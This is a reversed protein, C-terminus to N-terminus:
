KKDAKDSDIVEGEIVHPEDTHAAGQFDDSSEYQRYEGDFVNGGAQRTEVVVSFRGILKRVIGKRVPPILCSFGMIDTIFGPTLLLAGGVALVIGEIMEQGPVEQHALREQARRLTSFGQYRLVNVGIFATLMVLGVTYWAGITQGVKILVTIEAIPVLIFLLFLFRM